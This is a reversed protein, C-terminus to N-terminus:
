EDDKNSFQEMEEERVIIVQTNPNQEKYNEVFQIARERKSPITREEKFSKSSLSEEKQNQESQVGENNSQAIISICFGLVMLLTITLKRM